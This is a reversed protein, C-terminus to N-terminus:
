NVRYYEDTKLFQKWDNLTNNECEQFEQRNMPITRYKTGDDKIITYHRKSKNSTVKKINNVKANMIELNKSNKTKLCM